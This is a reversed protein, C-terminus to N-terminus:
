AKFNICEHGADNDLLWTGELTLCVPLSMFDKPNQLAKALVKGKKAGTVLLFVSSASTVISPTITLRQYPAKPGTVPVVERRKSLLAVSGPFLSAIHGDGGMGLLLVDLDKPILQEYSKAAAERDPNEAEMRAISCGSPVGNVLLTKMVLSYNSEPHDPPVCREDGFLLRVGQLPLASTKSSYEYLCEATEGGTLMVYCVGRSSLTADIAQRIADAAFSSWSGPDPSVLIHPKSIM